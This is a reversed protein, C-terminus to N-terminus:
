AHEKHKKMRVKDSIKSNYNKIEESIMCIVISHVYWCVQRPQCVQCIGSMGNLISCTHGYKYENRM